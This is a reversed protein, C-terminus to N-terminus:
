ETTDSEKHSWPSYGALNRQGHHNWALISSHTTMGEELPNEWGLFLIWIERMTPPKKIMQAVLSFFYYHSFNVVVVIIVSYNCKVSFLVKYM